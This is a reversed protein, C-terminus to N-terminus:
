NRSRARGIPRQPRPGQSLCGAPPREAGGVSACNNPAAQPYTLLLLGTPGQPLPPPLSASSRRVLPGTPMGQGHAASQRLDFPRKAIWAPLPGAEPTGAERPAPEELRRPSVGYLVQCILRDAREPPLRVHGASSAARAAAAVDIEGAAGVSPLFLRGRLLWDIASIRLSQTAGGLSEDIAKIARQHLNQGFVLHNFAEAPAPFPPHLPAFRPESFILTQLGVYWAAIDEFISM